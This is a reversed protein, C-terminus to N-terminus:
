DRRDIMGTWCFVCKGSYKDVPLPILAGHRELVNWQSHRLRRSTKTSHPRNQRWFNTGCLSRTASRRPSTNQAPSRFPHRRCRRDFLRQKGASSDNHESVFSDGKSTQPLRRKERTTERERTSAYSGCPAVRWSRAARYCTRTAIRAELLLGCVLRTYKADVVETLMTLNFVKNQRRAYRRTTVTLHQWLM